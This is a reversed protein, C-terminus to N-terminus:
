ERHGLRPSSGPDQLDNTDGFGTGDKSPAAQGGCFSRGSSHQKRNYGTNMIYGESSRKRPSGAVSLLGRIFGDAM